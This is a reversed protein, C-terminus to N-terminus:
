VEAVAESKVKHWWSPLDSDVLGLIALDQWKDAIRVGKRCGGMRTEEQFRWSTLLKIHKLKSLPIYTQVRELGLEKFWLNWLIQGFERFEPRLDKAAGKRQLFLFITATKPQPGVAQALIAFPGAEDDLQFWRLQASIASLANLNELYDPLMGEETLGRQLIAPDVAAGLYKITQSM